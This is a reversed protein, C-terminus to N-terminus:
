GRLVKTRKTNVPKIVCEAVEDLQNLEKAHRQGWACLAVLSEREERQQVRNLQVVLKGPQEIKGLGSCQFDKDAATIWQFLDGFCM